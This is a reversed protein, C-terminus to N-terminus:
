ARDCAVAACYGDPAVLDDVHREGLRETDVPLAFGRGDQKLVAETRCWLAARGAGDTVPGPPLLSALDSWARDVDAIREVDVGVPGATSVATVLHTGSRALSVDVGHSAWPRGHQDSGCGACLRGVTVSEPPVGAVTAVHARLADDAATTVDYWRVTVPEEIRPPRLDAYTTNVGGHQGAAPPASLV